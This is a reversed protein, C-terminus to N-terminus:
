HNRFGFQGRRRHGPGPLERGTRGLDDLADLHLGVEFGAAPDARGVGPLDFDVVHDPLGPIALAAAVGEKRGTGGAGDKSPSQSTAGRQFSQADDIEGAHQRTRMAGLCQTVEAGVDGLDLRGRAIEPAEAQRM